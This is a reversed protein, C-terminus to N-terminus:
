PKFLLWSPPRDDSTLHVQLGQRAAFRDVVTRVRVHAGDDDAYTSGALVGGSALLQWWLEVDRGVAEEAHNADVYVFTPPGPTQGGRYYTEAFSHSFDRVLVYRGEHQQLQNRLDEFILQQERDPLNAPDDYGRWIHIYPDVLYVGQATSWDSLLRLVFDGRGVGVVVGLGGRPQRSQLFRGFDDRRRLLAPLQAALAAGGAEATPMAAQVGPPVAPPMAAAAPRRQAQPRAAAVPPAQPENAELEKIQQLVPSAPPMRGAAVLTEQQEKAVAQIADLERLLDETSLGGAAGGTTPTAQPRRYVPPPEAERQRQPPQPPSAAAQAAAGSGSRSAEDGPRCPGSHNTQFPNHIQLTLILLCTVLIWFDYEGKTM